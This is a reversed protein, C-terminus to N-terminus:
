ARARAIFVIWPSLFPIRRLGLVRELREFTSTLSSNSARSLPFWCFGEAHEIQLGTGQMRRRWGPYTWRYFSMSALGLSQKARVLQGRLSLRNLLVGVMVGNPRLVRRAEAMFWDSDMVPNVELCLLLSITGDGCPLTTDTPSVLICTAEPLRHACLRLVDADVDTCTLSWGAEAALLSWRGGECGVDLAASPTGALRIARRVADEIIATTYRGWRTGTGIKEWRTLPDTRWSVSKRPPRLESPVAQGHSM